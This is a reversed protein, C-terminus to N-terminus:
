GSNSSNQDRRLKNTFYHLYLNKPRIIHFSTFYHLSESFPIGLCFSPLVNPKRPLQIHLLINGKIQKIAIAERDFDQLIGDQLVAVRTEERHASDILIVKSLEKNTTM